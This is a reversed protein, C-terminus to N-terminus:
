RRWGLEGSSWRWGAQKSSDCGRISAHHGEIKAALPQRCRHCCSLSPSQRNEREAGRRFGLIAAKKEGVKILLSSFLGLCFNYLIYEEVIKTTLVQGSDEGLVSLIQQLCTPNLCCGSNKLRHIRVQWTWTWNDGSNVHLCWFRGVYFNCVQCKSIKGKLWMRLNPRECWM